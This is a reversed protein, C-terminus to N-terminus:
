GQPRREQLIYFVENIASSPRKQCKNGKDKLHFPGMSAEQQGLPFSM